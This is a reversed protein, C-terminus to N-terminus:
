ESMKRECYSDMDRELRQAFIKNQERSFSVNDILNSDQVYQLVNLYIDESFEQTAAPERSQKKKDGNQKREVSCWAESTCNYLKRLSFLRPNVHAMNPQTLNHEITDWCHFVKWAFKCNEILSAKLSDPWQPRNENLWRGISGGVSQRFAVCSIIKHLLSEWRSDDEIRLREELVRMDEPMEDLTKNTVYNDLRQRRNVFGTIVFRNAM